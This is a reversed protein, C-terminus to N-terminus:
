SCEKGTISKEEQMMNIYVMLEKRSSVNLKMYIRKNHTKITNVSLKLIEIVENITHDKIYLNFVAKEAASLTKINKIFEDYTSFRFESQKIFIPEEELSIKSQKSQNELCEILDDIESIGTKKIANYNETKIYDIVNLLPKIYRRSIFVAFLLCSVCLVSYSLAHNSNETNIFKFVLFHGTLIIISFLALVSYLYLRIPTRRSLNSLKMRFVKIYDHLLSLINM